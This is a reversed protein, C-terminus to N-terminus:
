RIEIIEIDVKYESNGDFNECRLFEEVQGHTELAIIDSRCSYSESSFLGTSETFEAEMFFDASMDGQNIVDFRVLEDDKRFDQLIIETNEESAEASLESLPKYRSGILSFLFVIIAIVAASILLYTLNKGNVVKKISPVVKKISPKKNIKGSPSSKEVPEDKDKNKKIMGLIKSKLNNFFEKVSEDDLEKFGENDKSDNSDEEDSSEEYEEYEEEDEDELNVTPLFSFNEELDEEDDEDFEEDDLDDEENLDVFDEDDEGGDEFDDELDYEVEEFDEDDEIEENALDDPESQNDQQGEFDEIEDFGESEDVENSLDDLPELEDLDPLELDPLSFQSKDVDGGNNEKRNGSPLTPLSM